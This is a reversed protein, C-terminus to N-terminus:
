RIINSSETSSLGQLYAFGQKRANGELKTAVQQCIGYDGALWAALRNPTDDAIPRMTRILREIRLRQEPEMSQWELSMLQPLIALGHQRLERHAKDRTSANNSTFEHLLEETRRRTIQPELQLTEQLRQETESAILDLNWNPEVKLLLPFIHTQCFEPQEFRLHWVSMTSHAQKTGGHELSINISGHSPQDWTIKYDAEYNAYNIRCRGNSRAEVMWREKANSRYLSLNPQSQDLAITLTGPTSQDIQGQNDSNRVRFQGVRYRKGDLIIRGLVLRFSANGRLLDSLPLTEPFTLQSASQAFLTETMEPWVLWLGICLPLWAIPLRVGIKRGNHDLGITM